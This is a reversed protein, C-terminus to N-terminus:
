WFGTHAPCPPTDVAPAWACPMDQPNWGSGPRSCLSAEKFWGLLCRSNGTTQGNMQQGLIGLGVPCQGVDEEGRLQTVKPLYVGERPKM